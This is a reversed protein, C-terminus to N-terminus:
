DVDKVKVLVVGAQKYAHEPTTFIGYKQFPVLATNEAPTTYHIRNFVLILDILKPKKIGKYRLIHEIIRWGALQRPYYHESCKKTDPNLAEADLLAQSKYGSWTATMDFLSNGITRALINMEAYSMLPIKGKVGNLLQYLVEAKQVNRGKLM